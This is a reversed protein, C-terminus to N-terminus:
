ELPLTFIFEAGGGDARNQATIEGGHAEVITKCISLGLGIGKRADVPRCRSTYFTEFIKPLDEETIGDGTDSVKFTVFKDTQDKKVTIKIQGNDPTHKAANDLLNVLTQMILKGDMPVVLIEGPVDVEIKREPERRRMQELAGGVIEEVVQPEKNLIPAGSQLRTLSLINEVLSYLWRADKWIGEAMEYRPDEQDSMRVIVEATGMIGSLPTRLDHSIARLLNGRYREQEIEHLSKIRSQLSHIRSLALATCKAASDLFSRHSEQFAAAQEKPLRVAGLLKEERIPYEYFESIIGGTDGLARLSRVYKDREVLVRQVQRGEGMQQVFTEPPCGDEDFCVCAADCKLFHSVCEAVASSVGPLNGCEVLQSTLRYLEKAEEERRRAALINERMKSTLTSTVFSVITMIVFTVMYGPNDVDLSHYPSTFFYNYALTAAVSTMIGYLFGQSLTATIVVSLIYLLVINTELFGAARFAYGGLTAGCLTVISVVIGAFAPNERNKKTM